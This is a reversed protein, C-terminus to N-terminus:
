IIQVHALHAVTARAMGSHRTTNRSPSVDKAGIAESLTRNCAQTGGEQEYGLECVARDLANALGASM